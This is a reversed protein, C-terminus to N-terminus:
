ISFDEKKKGELWKPARGRGTWTAGTAPDKYKAAVAGKSKGGRKKGFVEDSTLEYEAIISHVKAIASKREGKMAEQIQKEIAEKQAKLEAITAM